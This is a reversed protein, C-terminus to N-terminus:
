LLLVFQMKINLPTERVIIIEDAYFNFVNKTIEIFKLYKKKPPPPPNQFFNLVRKIRSFFFIFKHLLVFHKKRLIYIIWLFAWLYDCIWCFYIVTNFNCLALYKSKLFHCILKKLLVHLLLILLLWLLVMKPIFDVSKSFCFKDSYKM